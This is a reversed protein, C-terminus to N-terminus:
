GGGVEVREERGRGVEVTVVGVGRGVGDWGEVDSGVADVGDELM